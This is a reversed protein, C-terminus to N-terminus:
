CQLHFSHLIRLFYVGARAKLAVELQLDFAVKLEVVLSNSLMFVVQTTTSTTHRPVDCDGLSGIM